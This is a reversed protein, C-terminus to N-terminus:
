LLHRSVLHRRTEHARLHTNSDPDIGASFSTGAGQVVVVRVRDPLGAGIAALGRWMAPTMANRRQPRSLTVTAVCGAPLSDDIDLRLGRRDLDAPDISVRGGPLAAFHRYL